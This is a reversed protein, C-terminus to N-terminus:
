TTLCNITIFVIPANLGSPVGISIDILTSGFLSNAVILLTLSISLLDTVLSVPGM